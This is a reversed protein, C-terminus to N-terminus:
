LMYMAATLVWAYNHLYTYRLSRVVLYMLLFQLMMSSVITLMPIIMVPANQIVVALVLFACPGVVEDMVASDKKVGDLSDMEFYDEGTLKVTVQSDLDYFSVLDNVNDLLDTAFDVGEKDDSADYAVTIFTSTNTIDSVYAVAYLPLDVTEFIYYSTM